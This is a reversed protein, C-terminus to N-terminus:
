EWDLDWDTDSVTDSLLLGGDREIEGESTGLGDSVPELADSESESIGVTDIEAVIEADGDRVGWDGDEEVESTGLNTPSITEVPIRPNHPIHTNHRPRNLRVFRRLLLPSSSTVLGRRM